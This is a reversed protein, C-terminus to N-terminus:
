RLKQRVRRMANDVTKVSITMKESIEKYSLGSLYENMVTYEMPSLVNCAKKLFINLEEKAIVAAAPDVSGSMMEGDDNLSQLLCAPVRKKAIVAKAASIMSRDICLRAYTKFSTGCYKNYTKVASMLGILGEQSLDDIEIGDNKYHAACIRVLKLYRAVIVGFASANGEAASYALAEDCMKELGINDNCSLCLMIHVQLCHIYM